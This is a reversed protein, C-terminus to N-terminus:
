TPANKLGRSEEVRRQVQVTEAIADDSSVIPERIGLDRVVM